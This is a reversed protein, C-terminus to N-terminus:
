YHIALLASVQNDGNSDLKFFLAEIETDTLGSDCLGASLELADLIGDGNIDISQFRVLAEFRHAAALLAKELHLHGKQSAEFLASEGSANAYQLLKSLPTTGDKARAHNVDAHAALLSEVVDFHANGSAMYLPTFGYTDEARDVEADAAVLAKVIDSHGQLSSMFLSTCGQNNAHNVDANAARLLKVVDIHGEESSIFLPTAGTNQACNVDADASLLAKMIDIHGKESAQWLASMGNANVYQVCEKNAVALLELVKAEKGNLALSNLAPGHFLSRVEQNFRDYAECHEPPAETTGEEMGAVMRNINVKDDVMSADAEELTVEIGKLAVDNPFWGNKPQVMDKHVGGGLDMRLLPGPLVFGTPTTHQEGKAIMGAVEFLKGGEGGRLQLVTHIEL